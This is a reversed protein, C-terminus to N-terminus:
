AVHQQYEWMKCIITTEANVDRNQTKKWPVAAGAGGGAAGSFL